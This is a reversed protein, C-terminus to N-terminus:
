RPKSFPKPKPQEENNDSEDDSTLAEALSGVKRIDGSKAAQAINGIASKLDLIESELDQVAQKNRSKAQELKESADKYKNALETAKRTESEIYDKFSTLGDEIEDRAETLTELADKFATVDMTTAFVEHLIGSKIKGDPYEQDFLGATREDGFIFTRYYDNEHALQENIGLLDSVIPIAKLEQDEDLEKRIIELRMNRERIAMESYRYGLENELMGKAGGHGDEGVLLFWLDRLSKPAEEPYKRLDQKIKAFKSM